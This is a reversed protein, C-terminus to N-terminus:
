LTELLHKVVISPTLEKTFLDYGGDAIKNRLISDNKLLLIKKALDQADGPNCLIINQGDVAIEEIAGSKMTILPKRSALAEFVKNPIVMAAKKTVGFIGLCADAQSMTQALEEYSMTPLLELNKGARVTAMKSEIMRREQGGGIIRFLINSDAELLKTADIIYEIGHLPIFTGHFHVIFRDHEQEERPYFVADDTGVFMRRFKGRAINFKKSVYEIQANTDFLVISAMRMSHWDFFMDRLGYFSFKTYLNRDEVNSNYLSVFADFIIRRGFLLRALWVVTHGPFAVIVIDFNNHKVKRYEHYLAIFKSIGTYNRPNVRCHVVEYGNEQFGRLLVRNRSYLPDYIGFFCVKAPAKDVQKM